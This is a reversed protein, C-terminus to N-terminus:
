LSAGAACSQHHPCLPCASRGWPCPDGGLLAALLCCPQWCPQPRLVALQMPCSVSGIFPCQHSPTTDSIVLLAMLFRQIECGSHLTIQPVSLFECSRILCRKLLLVKCPWCSSAALLTVDSQVERTLLILFAFKPVSKAFLSSFNLNPERRALCSSCLFQVVLFQFKPDSFHSLLM